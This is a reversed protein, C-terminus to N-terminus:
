NAGTSIRMAPRSDGGSSVDEGGSQSEGDGSGVLNELNELGEMGEMSEGLNEIQEGIEQLDDLLGSLESSNGCAGLSLVLVMTLLIATMKKKM